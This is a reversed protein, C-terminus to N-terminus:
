TRMRWLVYAAVGALVGIALLVASAAWTQGGHGRPKRPEPQLKPYPQALIADVRVGREELFEAHDNAFVAAREKGEVEATARMLSVLLFAKRDLAYEVMQQVRRDKEAVPKAQTLAEDLAALVAYAVGVVDPPLRGDTAHRAEYDLCRALHHAAHGVGLKTSVEAPSAGRVNRTYELAPKVYALLLARAAAVDGREYQDYVQEYPDAPAQARGHQPPQGPGGANRMEQALLEEAPKGMEALFAAHRDAVATAAKRDGNRVHARILAVVLNKKSERAGEVRSNVRETVHPQQAVYELSADLTATVADAAAVVEPPLPGDGSVKGELDICRRTLDAALAVGLRMEMSLPGTDEFKRAAESERHVLRVLAARAEAPRGAEYLKLVQHGFPLKERRSGAGPLEPEASLAAFHLPTIALAAVVTACWGRHLRM